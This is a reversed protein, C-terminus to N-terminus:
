RLSNKPGAGTEPKLASLTLERGQQIPTASFDTGLTERVFGYLAQAEPESLKTPLVLWDVSPAKSDSPGFKLISMEWRDSVYRLPLGDRLGYYEMITALLNPTLLRVSRREANLRRTLLEIDNAPYGVMLVGAGLLVSLTLSLALTRASTLGDKLLMSIGAAVTMWYLPALFVLMRPLLLVRQLLIMPVMVLFVALWIPQLKRGATEAPRGLGWLFAFLTALLFFPLMPGHLFGIFDTLMRPLGAILQAGDLSRIFENGFLKEPGSYLMVPLYLLATPLAILLLVLALTAALPRLRPWSWAVRVGENLVLWVLVIGLPYLMLPITYLGPVAVVIFGVWSKLRTLNQTRLLRVVELFLLLFGLTILSYGRANTSYEILPMSVALLALAIMGTHKGYLRRTLLYGAPLIMWGALLAPLRIAWLANGFVQTSLHVLLTHFLHNNPFSYDSLALFLPKAAYRLYTFAEDYQAPQRLFHLRPLLGALLLVVLGLLHFRDECKLWASFGNFFHGCHGPSDDPSTDM